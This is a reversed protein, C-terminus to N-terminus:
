NKYKIVKGKVNIVQYSHTVSVPSTGLKGNVLTTQEVVSTAIETGIQTEIDIVGDGGIQRTKVELLPKLNYDKAAVGLIEGIVEYEKQPKGSFFLDIPYDISHPIYATHSYNIFKMQRRASMEMSACGSFIVIYILLLIMIRMKSILWLIMQKKFMGIEKSFHFIQQITGQLEVVRQQL